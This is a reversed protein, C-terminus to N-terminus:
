HDELHELMLSALQFPQEDPIWHGAAEFEAFRYPADVYDATHEAAYRGFAPDKAGWVYLTPMTMAGLGELDEGTATRYYNLAATLAGDQAMRDVYHQVEDPPLAAELLTRFARWGDAALAQEAKGEEKFFLMYGSRQRQDDDNRLAERFALPHPVSVTTLTRVRDPNRCATQWAVAAGWDHGALDFSEAGLADAIALVDGVLESMAYSAVDAPRAGPSYGRQDYAVARYGAGALASIVPRWERSSQPFGHLLLVLRGDAPGDAIAEYTMGNAALELQEMRRVM